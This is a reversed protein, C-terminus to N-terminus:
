LIHHQRFLWSGASCRWGTRLQLLVFMTCNLCADLLHKPVQSCHLYRCSSRTANHAQPNDQGAAVMSM